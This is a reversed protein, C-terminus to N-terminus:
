LLTPQDNPYIAHVNPCVGSFFLAYSKAYPGFILLETPNVQSIVQLLEPGDATIPLKFRHTVTRFLRFLPFSEDFTKEVVITPREPIPSRLNSGLRIDLPLLIVKNKTHKSFKTYNGLKPGCAEYVRNIRYILDHVALPIGQNTFLQTLEPATSLPECLVIPHEGTKVFSLVTELLRDKEKKRQPFSSRPDSHIAKIVLTHARQLQMQRVTPIRHLMLEPAYLLKGRDSELFLSAGGLISGSPLLEMKLRGLAFPRNYQCKLANIKKNFCEFIRITEDTAIAQKIFHGKPLMSSSLFSIDSRSHADFWLISDKLHIGDDTEVLTFPPPQIEIQKTM